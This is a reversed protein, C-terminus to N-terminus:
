FISLFGERRTRKWHLFLLLLDAGLRWGGGGEGKRRRRDKQKNANGVLFALLINHKSENYLIYYSLLSQKLDTGLLLLLRSVGGL